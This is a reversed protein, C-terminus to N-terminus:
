RRPPRLRPKGNLERLEIHMERAVEGAIEHFPVGCAIKGRSTERWLERHARRLLSRVLDTSTELDREQGFHTDIAEDLVDLFRRGM